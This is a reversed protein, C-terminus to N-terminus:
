VNFNKIFKFEPGLFLGIHWIQTQDLLQRSFLELKKTKEVWFIVQCVLFLVNSHCCRVVITISTMIVCYVKETESIHTNPRKTM